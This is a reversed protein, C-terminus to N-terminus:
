EPIGGQGCPALYARLRSGAKIEFGTDFWIYNGAKFTMESNEGRTIESSTRIYSSAEYLKRGWIDQTLTIGTVCDSYLDSEYVGRGFTAARIRNAGTNIVLDTIPVNPLGNYFPIWDPMTTPNRYYVGHDTGIYVANGSTVAICNIPVNPLSGTMNTWQLGAGSSYFVKHFGDFGGMTVWVRNSNSPNVAIDTVKLNSTPFGLNNSITVWNDGLDDSRYVEGITTSFSSGGATYIRNVNTPCTTMTWSGSAGLNTWSSGNNTTRWVDRYGAFKINANTQHIEVTPYWFTDPSIPDINNGDNYFRTVSKNLSFVGSSSSGPDFRSDYGDGGYVRQFTPTVTNKILCGNDQTGIFIKNVDANTASMHYVQTTMLGNSLYTWNNGLDTSSYLGGDTAAYLKNDLPNFALDHIDVHTGGVYTMSSPSSTTRWIRVGGTIIHISNTNSVALAHDYDSQHSEGTGDTQSGLINPTNLVRGFNAGENLSLYLGAFVGDATPPGSFAYVAGPSHPTVALEIRGSAAFAPSITSPNWTNGGNTSYFIDGRMAAYVRTSSGPRYKIDYHRGAHVLNWSYGGNTTKFLGENTAALLNNANNPDQVLEYGVYAGIIPLPNTQQWTTGGDTSKFVGASRRLYGHNLVFGGGVNADGDGTLIYIINPNSPTVVIGSIAISPLFDTMPFWFTGGNTTKWLGGSPSGAYITNANTPHFAIRDIRGIGSTATYPGLWGWNGMSSRSKEFVERSKQAKLMKQNIDVFEGTPGLRSSQYLAWRAWHKYKPEDTKEIIGKEIDLYHQDVVQMIEELTQKGELKDNLSTHQGFMLSPVCILLSLQIVRYIILKMTKKRKICSCIL